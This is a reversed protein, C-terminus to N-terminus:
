YYYFTSPHGFLTPTGRVRSLRVQDLDLYPTLKGIKETPSTQINESFVWQLKIPKLLVCQCSKEECTFDNSLTFYYLQTYKAV